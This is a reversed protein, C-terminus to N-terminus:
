NPNVAQTGVEVQQSDMAGGIAMNPRPGVAERAPTIKFIATMGFLIVAIFAIVAVIVGVLLGSSGNSAVGKSSQIKRIKLICKKIKEKEEASLQEASMELVDALFVAKELVPLAVVSSNEALGKDAEFNMRNKIAAIQGQEAAKSFFENKEEETLEATQAYLCMAPAYGAQASAKLFEAFPEESMKEEGYKVVYLYQASRLGDKALKLLEKEKTTDNIGANLSEM